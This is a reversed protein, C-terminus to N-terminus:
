KVCANGVAVVLADLWEGFVGWYAVLLGIVVVLLSGLPRGGSAIAIAAAYVALVAVGKAAFYVVAFGGLVVSDGASITRPLYYYEALSLLM